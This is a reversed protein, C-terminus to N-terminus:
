KEFEFVSPTTETQDQEALAHPKTVVTDGARDNLDYGPCQANTSEVSATGPETPHVGPNDRVSIHGRESVDYGYVDDELEKYGPGSSFKVRKEMAQMLDKGEDSDYMNPCSM